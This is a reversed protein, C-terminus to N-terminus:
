QNEKRPFLPLDRGLPLANCPTYEGGKVLQYKHIPALDVWCKRCLHFVETRIPVHFRTAPSDRCVDCVGISEQREDNTSNSHCM